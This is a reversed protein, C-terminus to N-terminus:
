VLIGQRALPPFAVHLRHGSDLSTDIFPHRADWTKGASALLQLVWTRMDEDNWSDESEPVAQMGLGSDVFAARAGNLCIDTIEPNRLAEALWAPTGAIM